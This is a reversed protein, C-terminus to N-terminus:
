RPLRGCCGDEDGDGDHGFTDAGCGATDGSRGNGGSTGIGRGGNRVSTDDGSGSNCDRDAGRGGGDNGIRVNDDDSLQEPLDVSNGHFPAESESNDSLVIRESVINRIWEDRPAEAPVRKRHQVARRPNGALPVRRLIAESEFAADLGSTQEHWHHLHTYFYELSTAAAFGFSPCRLSPNWDNPSLLEDPVQDLQLTGVCVFVGNTPRHQSKGRASAHGRGSNTRAKGGASALSTGKKIKGINRSGGAEKPAALVLRQVGGSCIDETTSRTAPVTTTAAPDAICTSSGDGNEYLHAPAPALLRERRAVDRGLM